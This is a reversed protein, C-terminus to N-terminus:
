ADAFPEYSHVNQFAELFLQQLEPPPVSLFACAVTASAEIAEVESEFDIGPRAARLMELVASIEHREIQHNLRHGFKNRVSNVQLIGPRVAAASSVRSPFLKAKQFFSLKLGEFDDLGYHQTLFAGMFSEIVLHARLVRGIADHDAASLELFRQNHREFDAEIQEWHPQLVQLVQEIGDIDKM